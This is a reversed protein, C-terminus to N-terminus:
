VFHDREGPTDPYYIWRVLLIYNGRYWPEVEEAVYADYHRKGEKPDMRVDSSVVRWTYRTLTDDSLIPSAAQSAAQTQSSFVCTVIFAMMEFVRANAHAHRM